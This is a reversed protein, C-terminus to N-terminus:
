LGERVALELFDDMTNDLLDLTESERLIIAIQAADLRTVEPYNSTGGNRFINEALVALSNNGESRMSSMETLLTFYRDNEVFQPSIERLREVTADDLHDVEGEGNFYPQVGQFERDVIRNRFSLVTLIQTNVVTKLEEESFPCDGGNDCSDRIETSMRAMNSGASHQLEHRLFSEFMEDANRFEIAPPDASVVTVSM